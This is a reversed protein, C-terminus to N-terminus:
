GTNKFRSLKDSQRVGTGIDAKPPLASMPPLRAFKQKQGLASMSNAVQCKPFTARLWHPAIEDHNARTATM